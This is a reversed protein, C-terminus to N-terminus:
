ITDDILKRVFDSISMESQFAKSKLRRYTDPDVNLNLRIPKVKSAAEILKNAMPNHFGENEINAKKKAAAQILKNAM